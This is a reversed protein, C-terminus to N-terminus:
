KIRLIKSSNIITYNKHLKNNHISRKPINFNYNIINHNSRHAILHIIYMLIMEKKFTLNLYVDQM